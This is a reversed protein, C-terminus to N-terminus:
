IIFERVSHTRLYSLCNNKEEGMVLTNDEMVDDLVQRSRADRIRWNGKKNNNKKKTKRFSSDMSISAIKIKNEEDKEEIEYGTILDELLEPIELSHIRKEEDFIYLINKNNFFSQDELVGIAKVQVSYDNKTRWNSKSDGQDTETHGIEPDDWHVKFVRYKEKDEELDNFASISSPQKYIKKNQEKKSKYKKLQFNHLYVLYCNFDSDGYILWNGKFLFKIFTINKESATFFHNIIKNAFIKMIMIEGNTFAVAVNEENISTHAISLSDFTINSLTKNSRSLLDITRYSIRNQFTEVLISHNLMFDLSIYRSNENEITYIKEFTFLNIIAMFGTEGTVFLRKHNDSPKIETIEEM